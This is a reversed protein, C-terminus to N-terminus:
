GGPLLPGSPTAEIELVTQLWLRLSRPLRGQEYREIAELLVPTNIWSIRHSPM